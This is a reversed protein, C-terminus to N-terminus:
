PYPHPRRDDLLVSGPPPVADCRRCSEHYGDWELRHGRRACPHGDRRRRAVVDLVRRGVRRTASWGRVADGVLWAATWCSGLIVLVDGVEAASTM